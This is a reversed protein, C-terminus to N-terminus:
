ATQEMFIGAGLLPLIVLTSASIVLYHCLGFAVDVRALRVISEDNQMPFKKTM